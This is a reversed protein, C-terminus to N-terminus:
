ILPSSTKPRKSTRPKNERRVACVDILRVEDGLEEAQDRASAEDVPEVGRKLSM